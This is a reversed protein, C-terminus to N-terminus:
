RGLWELERRWAELAVVRGSRRGGILTWAVRGSRRGGILTWAM